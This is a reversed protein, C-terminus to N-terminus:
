SDRFTAFEQQPYALKKSVKSSKQEFMKKFNLSVNKMLHKLQKM